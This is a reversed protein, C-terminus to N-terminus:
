KARPSKRVQAELRKHLEAASDIRLLDESVELVHEVQDPGAVLGARFVPELSL